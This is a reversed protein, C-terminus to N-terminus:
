DNTRLPKTLREDRGLMKMVEYSKNIKERIRRRYENVTSREIGLRDSLTAPTARTIRIHAAVESERQSLVTRDHIEETLCVTCICTNVDKWPAVFVDQEPEETAGCLTCESEDEQIDVMDEFAENLAAVPDAHFNDSIFRRLEQDSYAVRGDCVTWETGSDQNRLDGDVKYYRRVHLTDEPFQKDDDDRELVYEVRVSRAGQEHIGEAILTRNDDFGTFREDTDFVLTSDVGTEIDQLRGHPSEEDTM